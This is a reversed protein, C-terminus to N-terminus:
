ASQANITVQPLKPDGIMQPPTPIKRHSITLVRLAIELPVGSRRLYEAASITGLMAQFIIGVDIKQATLIDSRTHSTSVEHDVVTNSTILM